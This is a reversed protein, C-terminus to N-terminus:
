SSQIKGGGISMILVECGDGILRTSQTKAQSDTSFLDGETSTDRGLKEHILLVDNMYLQDPNNDPAKWYCCTRVTPIVPCVAKVSKGV